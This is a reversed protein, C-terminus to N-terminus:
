TAGPAHATPGPPVPSNAPGSGPFPPRPPAADFPRLEPMPGAASGTAAPEPLAVSSTTDPKPAPLSSASSGPTPVLAPSEALKMGPRPAALAPATDSSAADPQQAVQSPATPLRPKTQPVPGGKAAAAGESKVPANETGLVTVEIGGPSSKVIFNHGELIRTVVHRLSGEYTGTIQTKLDASSRYHVNFEHGLAALIEEISTNQAEISVAEPSGSVKAGALASTPIIALAAALTAVARAGFGRSGFLTCFAAPRLLKM